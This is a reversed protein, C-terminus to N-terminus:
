FPHNRNIIAQRRHGGGPSTPRPPIPTLSLSCPNPLSVISSPSPTGSAAMVAAPPGACWHWARNCLTMASLLRAGQQASMEGQPLSLIIGCQVTDAASRWTLGGVQASWGFGTRQLVVFLPVFREHQLWLPGDRCRCRLYSGRATGFKREAYNKKEKTKNEQGGRVGASPEGSTVNLLPRRRTSRPKCVGNNAPAARRRAVCTISSAAAALAAPRTPRCGKPLSRRAKDPALERAAMAATM